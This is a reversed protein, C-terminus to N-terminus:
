HIVQLPRLLIHNGAQVQLAALLMEELGAQAVVGEAEVKKTLRFHLAM